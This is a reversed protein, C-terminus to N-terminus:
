AAPRKMRYLVHRRLRHGEPIAPHEFDEGEAHHMGLREMLGRSRRNDPVTFAVIEAQDLEEFAFRAAERAAELAYGQGWHDPFFRWGIEVAPTFAAPFYVEAVGLAGLVVGDSRREVAWFGHGAADIQNRWRDFMASGEVPDLPHPFHEMVRPDANLAIFTARDHEAWPRLVLRDTNLTVAM